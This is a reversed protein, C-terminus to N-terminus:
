FLANSQFNFFKLTLEYVSKQLNQPTFHPADIRHENRGVEVHHLIPVVAMPFVCGEKCNQVRVQKFIKHAWTAMKRENYLLLIEHSNRNPMQRAFAMAGFRRPGIKIQSGFKQSITKRAFFRLSLVLKM